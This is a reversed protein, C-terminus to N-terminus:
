GGCGGCGGCGSGGCGGCGTGGWGSGGGKGGGGGGGGLKICKVVVYLFCFGFFIWLVPSDASVSFDAECGVVVLTALLAAAVLAVALKPIIFHKSADVRRFHLAAFRVSAPPWIDAPPDEGFERRYSRFTEAYWDTFKRREGGGGKTPGHHLPVGLIDECLEKWYNETYCLHLHWAQDVEDSPTVPHGARACLYLFRRYESIVKETFERGWGNDRALRDSFSFDSDGGGIPFTEIKQWLGEDM